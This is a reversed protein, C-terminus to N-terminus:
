WRSSPQTCIAFCRRSGHVVCLTRPDRSGNIETAVVNDLTAPAVRSARVIESVSRCAEKWNASKGTFQLGSGQFRSPHDSWTQWFEEWFESNAIKGTACQKILSLLKGRIEAFAAQQRRCESLVSSYRSSAPLRITVGRRGPQSRGAGGSPRAEKYHYKLWDDTVPQTRESLQLLWGHISNYEAATLRTLVNAEINSEFAAHSLNSSGIIAYREGSPTKWALLKPHFAGEDLNTVALFDSLVPRPLWRLVQRCASKRTRGFDTGVLFLIRKCHRGPKSVVDWSTRYATAILLEEAEAVATDYLKSLESVRDAGQGLIIKM